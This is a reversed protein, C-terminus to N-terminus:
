LENCILASLIYKKGEITLWVYRSILGRVLKLGFFDNSRKARQASM